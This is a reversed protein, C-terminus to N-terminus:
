SLLNASVFATFFTQLEAPDVLVDPTALPPVAAGM